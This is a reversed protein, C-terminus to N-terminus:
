ALLEVLRSRVPPQPSSEIPLRPRLPARAEDLVVVTSFMLSIKGADIIDQSFSLPTEHTPVYQQSPALLADLLSALSIGPTYAFLSSYIQVAIDARYM